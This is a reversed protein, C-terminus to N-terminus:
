WSSTENGGCGTKLTPSVCSRTVEGAANKSITFEDGDTAKATLSYGVKSGTAKSLYAASTSAVIGVSAEERRLEIATVKEYSGNDGAAIAEAATEATRALEKAQVDRAPRTTSLFSPIAIAALIGIILIVVLLEILSFGREDASGQWLSSGERTLRHSTRFRRLPSDV